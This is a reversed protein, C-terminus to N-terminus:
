GDVRLWQDSDRHKWWGNPCRVYGELAMIESVQLDAYDAPARLVDLTVVSRRMRWDAAPSLM